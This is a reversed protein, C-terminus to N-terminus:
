YLTCTYIYITIVSINLSYNYSFFKHKTCLCYMKMYKPVQLYWFGAKWLTGLESLGNGWLRRLSGCAELAKEGLLHFYVLHILHMGHVAPQSRSGGTRRVM